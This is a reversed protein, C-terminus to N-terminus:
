GISGQIAVHVFHFLQDRVLFLVDQPLAALIEAEHLLELELDLVLLGQHLAEGVLVGLAHFKHKLELVLDVLRLLICLPAEVVSLDLLFGLDGLDLLLALGLQFFAIHLDIFDLFVVIRLRGDEFLHADVLDLDELPTGLAGVELLLDRLDFVLVLNLHRLGFLLDFGLEVFLHVCEFLLGVLVGLSTLREYSM